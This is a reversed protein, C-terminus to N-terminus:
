NRTKYTEFLLLYILLMILVFKYVLKTTQTEVLNVNAEHRTWRGPCFTKQGPCYQFQGPCFNQGHNLFWNKAKLLWEFQINRTLFLNEFSKWHPFEMQNVKSLLFHFNLRPFFKTKSLKLKIWSLFYKTQACPRPM